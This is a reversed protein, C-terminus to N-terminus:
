TRPGASRAAVHVADRKHSPQDAVVNLGAVAAVTDQQTEWLYRRSASRARDVFAQRNSPLTRIGQIFDAVDSGDSSMAVGAGTRRVFERLPPNCGVLVPVGRAVAQYLRNPACLRCNLTSQDYCVVSALAGDVYDVTRMQPVMGTFHVLEDVSPGWRERLRSMDEDTFRGLMILKISGDLERLAEICEHLKRGPDAGGQSVLYPAGNLWDAVDEPLNGPPLNCFEEDPYNHLVHAHRTCAEGLKSTLLEIREGNAAVVADCRPMWRCFTSRWRPNELLSDRPLEHQDWVVRKVRGARRFLWALPVLGTMEIDHIWLLDPKERLIIPLFRLWLEATKFALGAASRFLGRSALRVAHYRVGYSTRGTSRQNSAELVAVVPEIGLAMLSKCEKRVRDDYALGSTKLLM